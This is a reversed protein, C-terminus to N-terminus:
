AVVGPAGNKRSRKKKPPDQLEPEEPLDDAPLAMQREDGTAARQHVLEGSGPVVYRVQTGSDDLQLECEIVEYFFGNAAAAEYFERDAKLKGITAAKHKQRRTLEHKLAVAEEPSVKPADKPAKTYTPDLAARYRPQAFDRFAKFLSQERKQAEFTQSAKSAYDTQETDLLERKVAYLERGIVESM